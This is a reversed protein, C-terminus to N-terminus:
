KIIDLTNREPFPLFTVGLDLEIQRPSLGLYLPQVQDSNGGIHLWPLGDSVWATMLPPDQTDCRATNLLSVVVILLALRCM